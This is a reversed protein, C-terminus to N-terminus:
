RTSALLCVFLCIRIEFIFILSIFVCVCEHLNVLWQEDGKITHVCCIYNEHNAGLYLAAYRCRFQFFIFVKSSHNSFRELSSSKCHFVSSIDM